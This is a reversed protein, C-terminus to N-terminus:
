EGFSHGKIFAMAEDLSLGGGEPRSEASLLDTLEQLAIELAEAKIPAPDSGPRAESLSNTWAQHATKLTTSYRDLAPLLGGARKLQYHMEPFQSRLLQLALTKYM